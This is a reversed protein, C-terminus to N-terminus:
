HLHEWLKEYVFDQDENLEDLEKDTLKKGEYEAYSIRADDYRPCDSQDIDEFTINDIKTKNM